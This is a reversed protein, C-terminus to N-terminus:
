GAYFFAASSAIATSLVMGGAINNLGGSVNESAMVMGGSVNESAKVMGGSVNNNFGGSINESAKVM